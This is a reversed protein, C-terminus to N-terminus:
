AARRLTVIPLHKRGALFQVDLELRVGPNGKVLTVPQACPSPRPWNPRPEFRPRRNAPHRDHRYVEEPTRGGLTMHPRYTNYWDRILLLEKMFAERRYPVFTLWAIALKLTLILRETVAISGHQGVAGFRPKVGKRKCWDKFGSCWFQSGKDTILHKPKAKAQHITRGLFARVQESNPPEKFLAIGVIQRSFHDIVVGLWWCFPWRQPLSFPFWSTWMGGHIPVATLDASWVHNPYKSTVVRPKVKTAPEVPAPPPVPKAKLMRGVTRDSIHLTARALIEAIKVKGMAPCLRKLTTAVCGVWEPFKNVPERLQVLADPGDENIRRMWSAITPATVQFERATQELSWACAAKVELIAMREKPLYQPRRQAPIRSMRADKIRMVEDRLAAKAEFRDAHAKLRMRANISDAAWGRTYACAYQALAIVKL